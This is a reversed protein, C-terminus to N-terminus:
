ASNTEKDTTTLPRLTLPGFDDVVEGLPVYEGSGEPLLFVLPRDQGDVLETVHWVAGERDAYQRDVLYPVDDYAVTRGNVTLVGYSSDDDEAHTPRGDHWHLTVPIRDLSFADDLWSRPQKGCAKHTLFVSGADIEMLYQDDPDPCPCERGVTPDPAFSSTTDTM